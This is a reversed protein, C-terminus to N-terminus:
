NSNFSGKVVPYMVAMFVCIFLSVRIEGNVYNCKQSVNINITWRFVRFIIISMLRYCPKLHGFRKNQWKHIWEKKKLTKFHIKLIWVLVVAVRDQGLYPLSKKCGVNELGWRHPNGNPKNNNKNYVKTKFPSDLRSASHPAALHSEGLSLLRICSVILADNIKRLSSCFIIM